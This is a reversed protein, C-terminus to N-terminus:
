IEGSSVSILALIQDVSTEVADRGDLRLEPHEPAEYEQGLGTMHPNNGAAAEAYLGKPDRSICIDLPTDVFVEIFPHPAVLARATARDAQFPSVLAVIAVLHADALINAVCAVRRVNEARDTPSFGLDSSVTRRVTDGDLVYNAVGQERLRASLAEGISTKGSAPLGTLWVVAGPTRSVPTTAVM